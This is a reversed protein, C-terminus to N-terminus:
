FRVGCGGEGEACADFGAADELVIPGGAWRRLPGPWYDENVAGAVSFADPLQEAGLEALVSPCNKGRVVAVSCGLGDRLRRLLQAGVNICDEVNGACFFSDEDAM